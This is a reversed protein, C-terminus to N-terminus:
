ATNTGTEVFCPLNVVQKIAAVMANANPAKSIIMRTANLAMAQKAAAESIAVVYLAADFPGQTGLIEASRPSFVPLIVPAQQMLADIAVDNLAVNIQRYVVIEKTEIGKELLRETIEGRAHAGRFHVLPGSPADALIRQFLAEADGDASVAQWGRDTAAQTTARGVCWCPLNQGKVAGVANVSTFIAGSFAGLDDLPEPQIQIVPSSVVPNTIGAARLMQVFRRSAKTPRTVIITPQQLTM